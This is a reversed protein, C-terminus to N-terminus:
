VTIAVRGSELCVTVYWCWCYLLVWQWGCSLNKRISSIVVVCLILESRSSTAEFLGGLLQFGKSPGLIVEAPPPVLGVPQSLPQALDLADTGLHRRSGGGSLRQDLLLPTFSHAFIPTSYISDNPNTPYQLSRDPRPRYLPSFCSCIIRAQILQRATRANQLRKFGGGGREGSGASHGHRSRSFITGCLAASHKPIRVTEGCLQWSAQQCLYCGIHQTQTLNENTSRNWVTRLREVFQGNKTDRSSLEVVTATGRPGARTPLYNGGRGGCGQMSM